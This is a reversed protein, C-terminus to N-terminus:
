HDEDTMEETWTVTLGGCDMLELTMGSYDGGSPIRITISANKAAGERKSLWDIIDKGTVQVIHEIRTVTKIDHKM